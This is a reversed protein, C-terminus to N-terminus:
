SVTALLILGSAVTDAIRDGCLRRAIALAFEM